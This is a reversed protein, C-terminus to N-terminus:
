PTLVFWKKNCSFKQFTWEEWGGGTNEIKGIIFQKQKDM